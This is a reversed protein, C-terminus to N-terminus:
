VQTSMLDTEDLFDGVDDAFGNDFLWDDFTDTPPTNAEGEIPIMWPAVTCRCGMHSGDPPLGLLAIGFLDNIVFIQGSRSQCRPCVRGDNSTLWICGLLWRTGADTEAESLGSEQQRYADAAAYNSARMIAARTLLQSAYFTGQVVQGPKGDTGLEHAIGGLAGNVTAGTSLAAATSKRVKLVTQVAVNNYKEQWDTGLAQYTFYDGITAETLGPQLISSAVQRRNLRPKSVPYKGHLASDMLWLRGYYGASYATTAYEYATAANDALTDQIRPEAYKLVRQRWQIGASDNTLTTIGLSYALNLGYRQIDGSLNRIAKYDSAAARDEWSYTRKRLLSECIRAAYNLQDTKAYSQGRKNLIKAIQTKTYPM